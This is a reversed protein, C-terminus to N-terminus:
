IVYSPEIMCEGQRVLYLINMGESRHMQPPTLTTTKTKERIM